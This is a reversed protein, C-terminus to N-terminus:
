TKPWSSAIMTLLCTMDKPLNEIIRKVNNATATLAITEQSLDLRVISTCGVAGLILGLPSLVPPFLEVFVPIRVNIILPSGDDAVVTVRDMETLPSESDLLTLMEPPLPLVLKLLRGTPYVLTLTLVFTLPM